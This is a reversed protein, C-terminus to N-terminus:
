NSYTSPLHLRLPYIINLELIASKKKKKQSLIESHLETQGEGLQGGSKTEQTSYNYAHAIM